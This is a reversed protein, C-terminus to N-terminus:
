RERDGRLVARYEVDWFRGQHFVAARLTGEYRMGLKAMIRASATNESKCRAQVREVDFHDFVYDVMARSAETAIGRGWQGEDLAYGLEMCRHERSVWFCGVTGVVRGEGKLTIALPDPIMQSYNASAYSTIFEVSDELSSHPEWLTFRAVRPNCAYHYVDPADDRELSRLLLRETALTPPKWSVDAMGDGYCRPM